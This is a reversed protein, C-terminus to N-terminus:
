SNPPGGTRSTSERIRDRIKAAREYDEDAVAKALQEELTDRLKHRQRIQKELSALQALMPDNDADDDDEDSAHDALFQRIQETGRKLAAIAAPPDGNEALGAAEAQTRHFLVFGRYQEHAATYDESPSHDRVFDMFALTHNADTVARGFEGLSLWCIRRQYYQMFERDAENCHEINLTFAKGALEAATSKSKLYDFYTPFSHPRTGDPRDNLEMQLVGLDLRMQLVDRGGGAKVIRAQVTDLEYSWGKMAGDIDQRM